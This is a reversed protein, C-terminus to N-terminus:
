SANSGTWDKIINAVVKPDQQALDRAQALKRELTEAASLPHSGDEEDVININNGLTQHTQKPPPELLNKVLPMVVKLM